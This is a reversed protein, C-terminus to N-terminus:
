ERIEIVYDVEAKYDIGSELHGASTGAPLSDIQDALSELADSLLDPLIYREETRITVRLVVEM